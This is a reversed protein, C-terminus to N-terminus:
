GAVLTLELGKAKVATGSVNGSVDPRAQSDESAALATGKLRDFPRLGTSLIPRCCREKQVSCAGSAATARAAAPAADGHRTSARSGDGPSHAEDLAAVSSLLCRWSSLSARAPSHSLRLQRQSCARRSLPRAVPSGLADPQDPRRM